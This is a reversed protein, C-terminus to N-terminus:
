YKDWKIQVLYNGDPVLNGKTDRLVVDIVINEGVHYIEGGQLTASCNEINLPLSVIFTKSEVDYSLENIDTLTIKYLGSVNQMIRITMDTNNKIYKCVYSKVTNSLTDEYRIQISMSDYRNFKSVPIIKYKQGSGGSIDRINYNYLNKDNLILIINEKSLDLISPSLSIEIYELQIKDIKLIREDM